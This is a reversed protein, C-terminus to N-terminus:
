LGSLVKKTELRSYCFAPLLKRPHQKCYRLLGASVEPFVRSDSLVNPDLAHSLRRWILPRFILYGVVLASQLDGVLDYGTVIGSVVLYTPHSEIWIVRSCRFFGGVM